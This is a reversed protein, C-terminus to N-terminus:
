EQSINDSKGSEKIGIEEREIQITCKNQTWIKRRNIFQQVLGDRGYIINYFNVNRKKTVNKIFEWAGISRRGEIYM